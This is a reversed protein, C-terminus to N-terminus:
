TGIKNSLAETYLTQFSKDVSTRNEMLAKLKLHEIENVYSIATKPIVKAETKIGINDYIHTTMNKLFKDFDYDLPLSGLNAVLLMGRYKYGTIFPLTKIRNAPVYFYDGNNRIFVIVPVENKIDEEYEAQTLDFPKYITEYPKENNSFVETLSRIASVTLEETAGIEKAKDFPSEFTFVGKSGISPIIYGPVM